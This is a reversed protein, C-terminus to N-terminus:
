ESYFFAGKGEFELTASMIRCVGDDSRMDSLTLLLDPLLDKLSQDIPAALLTDLMDSWDFRGALVGSYSGDDHFTVELIADAFSFELFTDFVRLPLFVHFGQATLVGDVLSAGEVSTPEVDPNVDFTQGAELRDDTGVFPTGTARLITVDVSDDNTFDDLGQVDVMLLLEGENIAQQVLPEVAVAETTDLFPLLRALANDVGASGDMGVYDAQGCDGPADPGTVEGDLDFGPSVGDEARAFTIQTMVLQQDVGAEDVPACGALLACLLAFRPTM